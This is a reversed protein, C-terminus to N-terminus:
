KGMKGNKDRREVCFIKKPPPPTCPGKAVGTVTIYGPNTLSPGYPLSIKSIEHILIVRKQFILHRTHYIIHLPMISVGVGGKNENRDVSTPYPPPAHSRLSTNENRDVSTPPMPGGGGKAVRTVTTYSKDVPPPPPPPLAIVTSSFTLFCSITM